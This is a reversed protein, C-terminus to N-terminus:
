RREKGKPICGLACFRGAPHRIKVSLFDAVSNQEGWVSKWNGSFRFLVLELDV